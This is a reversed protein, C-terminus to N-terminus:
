SGSTISLCCSEQLQQCRLHQCRQMATPAIRQWKCHRNVALAEAQWCDRNHRAATCCTLMHVHHWALRSQQWLQQGTRSFFHSFAAFALSCLPRCCCTTPLSQLPYVALKTGAVPLLTFTQPRMAVAQCIQEPVPVVLLLLPSHIASSCCWYLLVHLSSATSTLM